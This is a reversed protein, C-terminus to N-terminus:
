VKKRLKLERGCRKAEKEFLPVILTERMKPSMEAWDKWKQAQELIERVVSLPLLNVALFYFTKKRGGNCEALLIELLKRKEIIETTYAEEGLEALRSLDKKRNQHTIFSDWQDFDEYKGCPYDSCEMCYAFNEREMSCKAIPCSQNGAGGGCGPCHGGIKMPCLGCSLGCLGVTQNERVFGKM